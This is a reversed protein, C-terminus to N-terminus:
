AAGELQTCKLRWQEIETINRQSQQMYMELQQTLLVIKEEYQNLRTKFQTEM